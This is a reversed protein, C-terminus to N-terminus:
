RKTPVGHAGVCGWPITAGTRRRRARLATGPKTFNGWAVWIGHCLWGVVLGGYGLMGNAM